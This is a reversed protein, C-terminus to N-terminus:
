LKLAPALDMQIFRLQKVEELCVRNNKRWHAYEKDVTGTIVGKKM